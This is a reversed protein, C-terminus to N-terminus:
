PLNAPKNERKSARKNNETRPTGNSHTTTSSLDNTMHM